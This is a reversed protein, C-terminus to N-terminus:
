RNKKVKKLSLMNMPNSTLGSINNNVLRVVQDYYLPVIPANDILLQDMQNYYSYRISDNLEFLAKEYIADFKPNNYHTYNFGIPSFNKSYFLSFFNEEDPYDAVWSKRFFNVKGNAVAESLISAKQVDIKIKIGFESLQSQIYEALELYLETTALSIEPMGKGEPYGAVILLDRVKDPNYDYGKINALGFSPLGFPIFGSTAPVGLNRRLYKMMKKRDFGYNIAQRLAKTKIPSKQVIELNEDILFGLYDTKLYPTTQMNFKTAYKEKLKGDPMLVEDTNIADIGSVMDINGQLFELFSTEKDRIFSISIADLYPLRNDGEFEFYNDNKILVIKSGEDWTKLNFPGTGVPNKRFDDGFYIVAEKPVVSFYKMTLIRLFPTFPKLLHITFTSDDIAEFGNNNSNDLNLLLSTASSVKADLLRNFSYVFDSAIVKRAKGDLLYKNENFYVNNKLNFTYTLGDKSINWSKAISAEVRLSDDLQLLGNYLQNIIWINEFSRAAAPDLSTIGTMENYKFVTSTIKDKKNVSTCSIFSVILLIFISFKSFMYLSYNRYTIREIVSGTKSNIDIYSNALIAHLNYKKFFVTLQEKM